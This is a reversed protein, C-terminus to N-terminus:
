VCDDSSADLTTTHDVFTVPFVGFMIADLTTTGHGNDVFTVSLADLMMM